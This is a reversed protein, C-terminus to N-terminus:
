GFVGEAGSVVLVAGSVDGHSLVEVQGDIMLNGNATVKGEVYVGERLKTNGSSHVLGQIKVADSLDVDGSAEVKGGIDIHDSLTVGASSTVKGNTTIYKTLTVPGSSSVKGNIQLPGVRSVPGPSKIPGTQPIGENQEEHNQGLPKEPVTQLPNSRHKSPAFPPCPGERHYHSSYTEYTAHNSISQQTAIAATYARSVLLTLAITLILLLSTLRLSIM